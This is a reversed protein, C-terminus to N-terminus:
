CVAQRLCNLLECGVLSNSLFLGPPTVEEVSVACCHGVASISTQSWRGWQLLQLFASRRFQWCEGHVGMICIIDCLGYVQWDARRGIRDSVDIDGNPGNDTEPYMIQM